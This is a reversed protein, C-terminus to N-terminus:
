PGTYVVKADLDTLKDNEDIKITITISEFVFAHKNTYRLIGKFYKTEKSYSYEFKTKKLYSEVEAFSTGPPLDRKISEIMKESKHKDKCGGTFIIIVGILFILTTKMKLFQQTSLKVKGM